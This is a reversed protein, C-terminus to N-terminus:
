RARTSLRAGSNAGLIVPAAGLFMMLAVSLPAMQYNAHGAFASVVMDVVISAVFGLWVSWAISQSDKPWVFAFAFAAVFPGVLWFAYSSPEDFPDQRRTTTQGVLLPGYGCALGLLFATVTKISM